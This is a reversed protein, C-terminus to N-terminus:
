AARVTELFKELELKLRNSEGALQQASSLVQASATGTAGAGQNVSVITSAVQATGKAAQQVNRAIEGTSAGQEEVATAIAAAIQSIHSITGGIEKIATVAHSTESQMGAIQSAIEDTAKATQAALAKVEQAVVAFGKGAEGARAAEITANLALLNTQEAIATILKLVDGIRGAAASLQAIRQDTKQAQDVAESAIRSSEQVQRSIEQVSASMEETASAVSSVNASAEESAAAVITSRKQTDDATKTMTQAASELEGSATSVTSVIDGVAKEFDGALKNMTARREAAIREDVAAKEAAAKDEAAKRAAEARDIYVSISYDMDLMAAKTIAAQWVAKRARMAKGNLLGEPHENQIAEILGALVLSYGGIYWRPELGLRHHAEGIRNVSQIYSDDFKGSAINMWHKLQADRAHRMHAEGSFFRKADATEGVRRYFKELIDPLVRAILPQLERLAARLADDVGIFALRAAITSDHSM